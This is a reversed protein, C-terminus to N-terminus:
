MNVVCWLTSMTAALLAPITSLAVLLVLPFNLMSLPILPLVLWVLAGALLSMRDLPCYYTAFVLYITAWAAPLLALTTSTSSTCVILVSFALSAVLLCCAYFMFSSLGSVFGTM